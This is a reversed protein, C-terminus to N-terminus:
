LDIRMVAEHKKLGCREYFAVNEESCNLIVKYCGVRQAHYILHQLLIRGFGRSRHAEDVVLEEIRGVKSGGRIMKSDIQLTGVALLKNDEFIGLIKNNCAGSDFWAQKFKAYDFDRPEPSLQAYLERIRPLHEEGCYRCFTTM